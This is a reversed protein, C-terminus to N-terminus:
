VGPEPEDVRWAGVSSGANLCGAKREVTVQGLSQQLQVGFHLNWNVMILSM